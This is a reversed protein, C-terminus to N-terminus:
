NIRYEEESVRNVMFVVCGPHRQEMEALTRMVDHGFVIKQEISKEKEYHDEGDVEEVDRARMAFLTYPGKDHKLIYEITDPDEDLM